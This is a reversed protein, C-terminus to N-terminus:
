KQKETSGNRVFEACEAFLSRYDEDFPSSLSYDVVAQACREQEQKLAAELAEIRDAADDMISDPSLMHGTTFDYRAGDRLRKVLDSM